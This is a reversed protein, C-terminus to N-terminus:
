DADSRAATSGGRIANPKHGIARRRDTPMLYLAISDFLRGALRECEPYWRETERRLQDLTTGAEQLAQPERQAWDLATDPEVEPHYQFAYTRLGHAWAQVPCRDSTALVRAGPPPETVQERHFHLQRSTWSIGSYVADEIGAPTLRVDHWGLEIGGAVPGVKGGLARAMIQSGLCLGVVPIAAENASRILEMERDLWQDRDNGSQPGGTTIVGEVDDLDAPLADGRHLAVTRLRHGYDRLASGLRLAGTFPSHELILIM